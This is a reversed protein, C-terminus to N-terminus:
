DKNKCEENTSYLYGRYMGVALIYFGFFFIFLISTAIFGGDSKLCGTLGHTIYILILVIHLLGFYYFVDRKELRFRSNPKIWIFGEALHLASGVFGGTFFLFITMQFPVNFFLLIPILSMELGSLVILFRRTKRDLDHNKFNGSNM